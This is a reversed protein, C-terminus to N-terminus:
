VLPQLSQGTLGQPLSIGLQDGVTTAVQRPFLPHSEALQGLPWPTWVPVFPLQFHRTWKEWHHSSTSVGTILVNPGLDKKWTLVDAAVEMGTQKAFAPIGSFLSKLLRDDYILTLGPQGKAPVEKSAFFRAGSKELTTKLRLGSSRDVLTTSVQDILTLPFRSRAPRFGITEDGVVGSVARHLSASAFIPFVSGGPALPLYKDNVAIPLSADSWGAKMMSHLFPRTAKFKLPHSSDMLTRMYAEPQEFAWRSGALSGIIVRDRLNYRSLWSELHTLCDLPLMEVSSPQVPFILHLVIVPFPAYVLHNLAVVLQHVTGLAEDETLLGFVHAPQNPPCDRIREPLKQLHLDMVQKATARQHHSLLCELAISSTAPLGRPEGVPEGASSFMSSPPGWPLEAPSRPSLTALTSADLGDLFIWTLERLTAM